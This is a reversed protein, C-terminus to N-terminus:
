SSTTRSGISRPCQSVLILPPKERNFSYSKGHQDGEVNEPKPIEAKTEGEPTMQLCTGNALGAILQKGKNSWSVCSVGDKLTQGQPGSTFQRTSLNAMILQGNSTVVAVLEAREATPNPLVERLAVGSTSLELASQTNGQSLSQVEYAALGGGDEASLILFEENATFSVHSIRTGLSLTLQPEFSKTNGGDNANFAQRVADTSAVVVSDPGGAALLGKKSAISLLSATPPPLANSPWPSRILQLKSEGALAQFGIGKAMNAVTDFKM